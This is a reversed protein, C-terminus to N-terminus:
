KQIIKEFLESRNSVELKSFISSTHKKVTNETIFLEEAIEKRKKNQLIKEFVERERESLKNIEPFVEDFSQKPLIHSEEAVIIEEGNDMVLEYDQIMWYLLLLLLESAIYSISLFEFDYNIFQEVFWIAVNFFVVILLLCAHKFSAVKKKIYAVIIVGPMILMYSFLYVYYVKHLPGYEKILKAAGNVFVLEVSSYYYNFYGQSAM